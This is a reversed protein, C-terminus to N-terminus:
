LLLQVVLALLSQRRQRELLGAYWEIDLKVGRYVAKVGHQLYVSCVVFNKVLVGKFAFAPNSLESDLLFTLFLSFNYVRECIQALGAVASSYLTM